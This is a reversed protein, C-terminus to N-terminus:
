LSAEPTRRIYRDFLAPLEPLVVDALELGCDCLADALLDPTLAAECPTALPAYSLHWREVAVGGTDEAYPRFFGGGPLSPRIRPPGFDDNLDPGLRFTVGSSAYTFVNGLSGGFHPVFDIELDLFLDQSDFRHAQEYFLVAGPENKLQNDWGEPVHIGLLSHWFTQLKEALSAPGVMGIELQIKDYRTSGQNAMLGFGM